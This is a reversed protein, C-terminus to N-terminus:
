QKILSLNQEIDILLQIQKSVNKKSKIYSKGQFKHM